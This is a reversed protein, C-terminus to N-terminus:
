LDANEAVTEADADEDKVESLGTIWAILKHFMEEIFELSFGFAISIGVKFFAVGDSYEDLYPDIYFDVYQFIVIVVVAILAESLSIARGTKNLIGSITLAGLLAFFQLAYFWNSEYWPAEISLSFAAPKSLDGDKNRSQVLFTYDGWDLNTYERYTNTSWNSWSRNLGQLMVKHELEGLEEYNNSSYSFRFANTTYDFIFDSSDSQDLVQVGERQQSFAGGFILSDTPMYVVRRIISAFVDSQNNDIAEEKSEDGSSFWSKVVDWLDVAWSFFHTESDDTKIPILSTDSQTSDLVAVANMRMGTLEPAISILAVGEDLGTWLTSTPTFLLDFVVNNMLGRPSEGAQIRDVLEGDYDLLLIGDGFTGIAILKEEIVDIATIGTSITNQVTNSGSWKFLSFEDTAVNRHLLSIGSSPTSLLLANPSISRMIDPRSIGAEDVKQLNNQDDLYVIGKDQDTLILTSGLLGGSIFSGSAINTLSENAYLIVSNLGVFYVLDNTILLKIVTDNYGEPLLNTLTRYRTTGGDDVYLYGIENEGGAFIRGKNNVELANVGTSDPVPIIRWELGDFEVIGYDMSFYVLGRNDMTISNIQINKFIGDAPFNQTKGEKMATLEVSSVTVSDTQGALACALASLSFFGWLLFLSRTLKFQGSPM